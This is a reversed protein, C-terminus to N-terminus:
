RRAAEFRSLLLATWLSAAGLAAVDILPSRAWVSVLALTALGLNTVLVARTVEPVTWGSTTARQYFHSRHAESLREGRRWRRYLTITADALYYLPLILAAALHGNAALLILLWGVLAGIALSGVDGLFVRAVHRNWPWFGALAGALAAAILGGPEPLVGVVGLGALVASVPLMEAVTMEDIGDMFNVLNIFWVLGVILVLTEIPAPLPPLARVDAPITAVLVWAAALQLVLRPRFDLPRIDDVAGLVGLLAVALLAPVLPGPGIQGPTVVGTGIAATTVLLAAGVVGIGAGQATPISHSSRAGPRALAYRKLVPFLLRILLASIGAALTAAGLLSLAIATVAMRM